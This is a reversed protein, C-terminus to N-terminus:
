VAYVRNKLPTELSEFSNDTETSTLELSIAVNKLASIIRVQEELSRASSVMEVNM